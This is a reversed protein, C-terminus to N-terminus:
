GASQARLRREIRELRSRIEAIEGIVDEEARAVESEIEATEEHIEAAVFRQALAALLLSGFGVGIAMVVVAILRGTDTTPALDGYGVTTMTVVAWWVGDWTSLPKRTTTEIAAFAAGGGLAALLAVVAAWRLGDLSFLRKGLQAGRILPLLLRLLRFLRAAQLSLPWLPMAFVVIAAELPHRRLWGVRNRSVALVTVAEAAFIIWIVWNLTVGFTRWARGPHSQEIVIVPVVLAAAVLVPKEFRGSWKEERSM